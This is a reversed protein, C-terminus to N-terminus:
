PYVFAALTSFLSLSLSFCIESPCSAALDSGLPFPPPSIDRSARADMDSSSMSANTCSGLFQAFNLLAAYNGALDPRLQGILLKGGGPYRLSDHGRRVPCIWERKLGLLFIHRSGGIWHIVVQRDLKPGLLEIVVNNALLKELGEYAFTRVRQNLELRLSGFAGAVADPNAESCEKGAIADLAVGGQFAVFLRKCRIRVVNEDVLDAM